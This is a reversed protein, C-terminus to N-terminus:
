TLEVPDHGDADIARPHDLILVLAHDKTPRAYGAVVIAGHKAMYADENYRHFLKRYAIGKEYAGPPSSVVVIGAEKAAAELIEVFTDPDATKVVFCKNGFEQGTFVSSSRVVLGLAVRIAVRRMRVSGPCCLVAREMRRALSEYNEEGKVIKYIMSTNKAVAAREICHSCMAVKHDMTIMNFDSDPRLIGGGCFACFKAQHVLNRPVIQPRQEPVGQKQTLVNCTNQLCDRIRSNSM